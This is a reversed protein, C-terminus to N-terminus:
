TIQAKTSFVNRWHTSQAKMHPYLRKLRGDHAVPNNIARAHMTAPNPPSMVNWSAFFTFATSPIGGSSASTSCSTSFPTSSLRCSRLSSFCLDLLFCYCARSPAALVERYHIFCWVEAGRKPFFPCSAVGPHPSNWTTLALFLPDVFGVNPFGNERRRKLSSPPVMGEKKAWRQM